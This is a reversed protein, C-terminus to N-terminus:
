VGIRYRAICVDAEAVQVSILLEKHSRSQVPRIDDLTTRVLVHILNCSSRHRQSLVSESSILPTKDRELYLTILQSLDGGFSSEERM